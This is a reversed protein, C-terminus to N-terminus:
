SNKISSISISEVRTETEKAPKVFHAIWCLFLNFIFSESFAYLSM